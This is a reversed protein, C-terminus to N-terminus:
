VDRKSTLLQEGREVLQVQIRKGTPLAPLHGYVRVIIHSKLAEKIRGSRTNLYGHDFELFPDDGGRDETAVGAGGPIEIPSDVEFILLQPWVVQEMCLDDSIEYVSAYALVIQSCTEVQFLKLVEFLSKAGISMKGHGKAAVAEGM